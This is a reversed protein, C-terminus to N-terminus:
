TRSSAYSRPGGHGAESSYGSTRFSIKTTAPGAEEATLVMSRVIAENLRFLRELEAVREAPAQFRLLVYHGEAQRKIRFALRRRGMPQAIEITGGLKKITEELQGAHRAQDQESGASKLIVLAEYAKTIM